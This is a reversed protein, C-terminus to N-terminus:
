AIEQVKADTVEDLERPVYSSAPLVLTATTGVGVRSKLVVDGDHLRALHRCLTLGLGAGDSDRALGGDSQYFAEFVRDLEDEAIGPGFDRISIFPRGAEDLRARIVLRPDKERFRFANSLLSILIRQCVFEDVMLYQLKPSVSVDLISLDKIGEFSAALSISKALVSRLDVRHPEVLFRGLGVKSYDIIDDVLRLLHDGSQQIGDAYDTIEKRSLEVKSSTSMLTSYGIIVNLPTRLEHSMTSLFRSKAEDAEEAERRADVLERERAKMTTVDTHVVVSGGSDVEHVSRLLWHSGQRITRVGQESNGFTDRTLQTEFLARHRDNALVLTGDPGFFAFADHSANIANSLTNKAMLTEHTRSINAKLQNYSMLSSNALAMFFLTGMVSLALAYDGNYVFVAMISPLLCPFVFRVTHRPLPTILSVVGAAMGSHMVFLFLMLTTDGSEFGFLFGTGGWLIGAILSAYEGKRLYAGSVSKPEPLNRMRWSSYVQFLGIAAVIGTWSLVIWPENAGWVTFGILIAALTNIFGMPLQQKTLLLQQALYVDAQAGDAPKGFSGFLAMFTASPDRATKMPIISQVDLKVHRLAPM